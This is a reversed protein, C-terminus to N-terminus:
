QAKKNTQADNDFLNLLLDLEQSKEVVNDDIKNKDKVLQNLEARKIEILHIIKEKNDM